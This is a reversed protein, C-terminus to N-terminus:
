KNEEDQKLHPGTLSEFRIISFSPRWMQTMLWNLTSLLAPNVGSRSGDVGEEELPALAEENDLAGGSVGLLFRGACFSSSVLLPPVGRDEDLLKPAEEETELALRESKSPAM